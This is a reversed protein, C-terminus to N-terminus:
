SPKSRLFEITLIAAFGTASATYASDWNLVCLSVSVILIVWLAAISGKGSQSNRYSRFVFYSFVCAYPISVFFMWEEVPLDWLFYGLLYSENFGWIGKETFVIDWIIFFTLTM